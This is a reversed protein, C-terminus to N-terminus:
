IRQLIKVKLGKLPKKRVPVSCSGSHRIQGTKDRFRDSQKPSDLLFYLVVMRYLTKQKKTKLTACSLDTLTMAFEQMNINQLQTSDICSLFNNFFYQRVQDM